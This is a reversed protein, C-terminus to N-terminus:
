EYRLVEAPRVRSVRWAPVASAFLALVLALAVAYLFIAPTVAVEVNGGIAGGRGGVIVMGGGGSGPLTPDSATSVLGNAVAQATPFTVLAGVAAAVVAVVLTEVGFQLGVHWGGAGVAKLIGIERVRQRTVLATAFLIVAVSAVLAAILAIRSSRKASTLSGSIQDYQDTSTTVDVVDTGIDTRISEAVTDVNEADDVQATISSLKGAQDFLRQATTLPLYIGNDGFFTESSYIGAVEITAGQLEFTSGVELGNQEALQQGILAVNADADAATFGRGQSITATGGGVLQLPGAADTGTTPIFTGGEGDGVTTVPEGASIRREDDPLEPRAMELNTEIRFNELIREVSVVHPIAAIAEVVTEDLLPMEEGNSFFFGRGGVGAPRVTVDTGVSAKIQDLRDAFAADVTLMILALSIGVALLSVMLGARLPSRVVNRLARLATRMPQKM